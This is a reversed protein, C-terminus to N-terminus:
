HKKHERKSSKEEIKEESKEDSKDRMKREFKGDLGDHFGKMMMFRPGFGDFNRVEGRKILSSTAGMAFLLAFIVGASFLVPLFNIICHDRDFRHDSKGCTSHLACQRRSCLGFVIVLFLLAWSGYLYFCIPVFWLNGSLDAGRIQLLSLLLVLTLSIIIGSWLAIKEAFITMPHSFCAEIESHEHKNHM